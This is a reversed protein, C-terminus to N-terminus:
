RCSSIPTMSAKRITSPVAIKIPENTILTTGITKKFITELMMYRALCTALTMFSPSTSIRDM